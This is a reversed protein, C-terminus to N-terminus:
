IKRTRKPLRRQVTARRPLLPTATTSCLVTIGASPAETHISNNRVTGSPAARDAKTQPKPWQDGPYICARLEWMTLENHLQSKNKDATREKPGCSKKERTTYKYRVLTASRSSFLQMANTEQVFRFNPNVSLLQAEGCMARGTISLLKGVMASCDRTSAKSWRHGMTRVTSM